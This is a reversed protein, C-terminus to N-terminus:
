HPSPPASEGQGSRFMKCVSTYRISNTWTHVRVLEVSKEKWFGIKKAFKNSNKAVFDLKLFFDIGEV